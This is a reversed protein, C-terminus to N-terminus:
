KISGRDWVMVYEEEQTREDLQKTSIEFGQKLYFTLAPQNKRYVSLSLTDNEAKAFSLLKSGIGKNQYAKQVFIGAIYDDVLGIFGVIKTQNYYAFLTATQIAQKVFDFQEIWYNKDIFEHAETNVELWITMIDELESMSIDTIIRIM